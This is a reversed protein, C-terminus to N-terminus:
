AAHAHEKSQRPAAPKDGASANIPMVIRFHAGPFEGDVIQV